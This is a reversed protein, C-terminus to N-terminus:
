ARVARVEICQARSGAVHPSVGGQALLTAGVLLWGLGILMSAIEHLNLLVPHVPHTHAIIWNFWSRVGLILVVLAAARVIMFSVKNLMTSM